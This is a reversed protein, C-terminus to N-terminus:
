WECHPLNLKSALNASFFTKIATKRDNPRGDNTLEIKFLSLFFSPFFAAEASGCSSNIGAPMVKIKKKISDKKDM